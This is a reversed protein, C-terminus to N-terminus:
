VDTDILETGDGVIIEGYIKGWEVDNGIDDTWELDALNTEFKAIKNASEADSAYIEVQSSCPRNNELAWLTVLYRRDEFLSDGIYKVSKALVKNAIEEVVEGDAFLLLDSIEKVVQELTKM